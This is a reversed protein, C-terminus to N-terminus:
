GKVCNSWKIEMFTTLSVCSVDVKMFPAVFVELM